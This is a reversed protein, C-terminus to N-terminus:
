IPTRPTAAAQKGLCARGNLPRSGASEGHRRLEPTSCGSRLRPTPPEFGEAPVLSTLIKARRCILDSRLFEDQPLVLPLLLGLPSHHFEILGIMKNWWQGTNEAVEASLMQALTTEGASRGTGKLEQAWRRAQSSPSRLSSSERLNHPSMALQSIRWSGKLASIYARLARSAESWETTPSLTHRAM